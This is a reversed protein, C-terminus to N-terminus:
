VKLARLTVIGSFVLTQQVRQALSPLQSKLICVSNASFFSFAICSPNDGCLNCCDGVSTVVSVSLDNGNYVYDNEVFCASPRNTTTSVTTTTSATTTTATTTSTTTPTTTTTTTTTAVTVPPLLGPIGAYMYTLPVRSAQAPVANKLTCVKTLFNWTWAACGATAGCRNCCDSFSNHLVSLTDNGIYNINNEVFCGITQTVPAVTTTAPVTLIITAPNITSASTRVIGSTYRSSAVTVSSQGVKYCRGKYVDYSYSYCTSDATCKQCCDDLNYTRFVSLVTGNYYLGTQQSCTSVVEESSKDWWNNWNNWNSWRAECQITMFTVLLLSFIAKNGFM